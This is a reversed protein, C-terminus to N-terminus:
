KFFLIKDFHLRYLIYFLVWITHTCSSSNERLPYVWRSTMKCPLFLTCWPTQKAIERNSSLKQTTKSNEFSYIVIGYDDEYINGRGWTLEISYTRWFLILPCFTDWIGTSQKKQFCLNIELEVLLMYSYSIWWWKVLM